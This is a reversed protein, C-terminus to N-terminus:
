DSTADKLVRETSDAGSKLDKGIGRVTNCAVLAVLMFVVLSVGFARKLSM